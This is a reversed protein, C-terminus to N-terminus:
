YIHKLTFNKLKEIESQSLEVDIEVSTNNQVNFAVLYWQNKRQYVYYFMYMMYMLNCNHGFKRRYLEKIEEAIPESVDIEGMTYKTLGISDYHLATTTPFQSEFQPTKEGNIKLIQM